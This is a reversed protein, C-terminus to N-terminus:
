QLFAVIPPDTEDPTEEIPIHGSDEIEVLRANPMLRELDRGVGLPIVPDERGWVLLTPATIEAYRRSLEGLDEAFLQHAASVLARRAALQRLPAAYAEVQDDTVKDPECYALRLALRVLPEPWFALPSLLAAAGHVFRSKLFDFRPVPLSVPDILVLRDLTRGDDLLKLAAILAVGGGMSHGILSVSPLGLTRVLGVVLDAQDRASYKGDSPKLARGFGKLDVVYTRYGPPIKPKLFRWLYGNAGFGHLLFLARGEGTPPEDYFLEKYFPM